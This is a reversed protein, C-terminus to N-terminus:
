PPPLTDRLWNAIFTDPSRWGLVSIMNMIIAYSLTLERESQQLSPM